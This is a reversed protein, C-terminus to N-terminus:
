ARYESVHCERTYEFTDLHKQLFEHACNELCVKSANSLLGLVFDHFQKENYAHAAILGLSHTVPSYVEVRSSTSLGQYTKIWDADSSLDKTSTKPSANILDLLYNM